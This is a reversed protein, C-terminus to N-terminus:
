FEESRQYKVAKKESGEADEGWSKGREKYIIDQTLFPVLDVIKEMKDM